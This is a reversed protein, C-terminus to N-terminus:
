FIYILGGLKSIKFHRTLEDAAFFRAYLHKYALKQMVRVLYQFGSFNIRRGEKTL